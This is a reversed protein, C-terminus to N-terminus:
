GLCESASNNNGFPVITTPQPPLPPALRLRFKELGPILVSTHPAKSPINKVIISQSFSNSTRGQQLVQQNYKSM